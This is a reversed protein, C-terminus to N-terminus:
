GKDRYSMWGGVVNIAKAAMNPRSDRAAYEALFSRSMAKQMRQNKMVWAVSDVMMPM